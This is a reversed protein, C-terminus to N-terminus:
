IIVKKRGAKHFLGYFEIFQAKRGGNERQM